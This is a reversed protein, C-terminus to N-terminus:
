KDEIVGARFNNICAGPDRSKGELGMETREGTRSYDDFGFSIKISGDTYKWRGQNSPQLAYCALWLMDRCAGSHLRLGQGTELGSRLGAVREPFALIGYFAQCLPPSPPCLDKFNIM